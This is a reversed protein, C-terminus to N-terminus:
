RRDGLQNILKTKIIGIINTIEDSDTVVREEDVEEMTKYLHEYVDRQAKLKPLEKIMNEIFDIRQQLDKYERFFKLRMEM